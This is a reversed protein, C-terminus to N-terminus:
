GRRNVYRWMMVANFFALGEPSIIRHFLWAGLWVITYWVGFTWLTSLALFPHGFGVVAVLVALLGTVMSLQHTEISFGEARDRYSSRVDVAMVSQQPMNIDIPQVMRREIAAAPQPLAPVYASSQYNIERKAVVPGSMADTWYEPDQPTIRRVQTKM